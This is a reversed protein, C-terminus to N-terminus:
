FFVRAKSEFQQLASTIFVRAVKPLLLWEHKVVNRYNVLEAHIIEKWEAGLILLLVFEDAFQGSCPLQSLDSLAPTPSYFM